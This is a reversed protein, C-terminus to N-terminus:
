NKNIYNKIYNNHEPFFIPQNLQTDGSTSYINRPHWFLKKNKIFNDDVLDWTITGDENITCYFFFDVNNNEGKIFKKKLKFSKVPIENDKVGKITICMSLKVFTCNKNKNKKSRKQKNYQKEYIDLKIKTNLSFFEKKSDDCYKIFEFLMCPKIWSEVNVYNYRKVQIGVKVIKGKYSANFMVDNKKYKKIDNINKFNFGLINYSKQNEIINKIFKESSNCKSHNRTKGHFKKYCKLCMEGNNHLEELREKSITTYNPKKTIMDYKKSTCSNDSKIHHKRNKYTEISSM